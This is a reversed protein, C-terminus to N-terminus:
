RIAAATRHNCKPPHCGAELNGYVSLKGGGTISGASSITGNFTQNGSLSVSAFSSIGPISNGPNVYNNLGYSSTTGQLWAFPGAPNVPGWATTASGIGDSPTAADPCIANAAINNDYPAIEKYWYGSPMQYDSPLAGRNHQAYSLAALSLQHLNSLCQAIRAYERARSLAALLITGLIALIALVVIIETLTFGYKHRQIKMKM